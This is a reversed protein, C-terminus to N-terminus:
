IVGLKLVDAAKEGLAMVILAGVVLYLLKMMWGKIEGSTKALSTVSGNLTMLTGEIRVVCEKLTVYRGELSGLDERLTVINLGQGALTRGYGALRTEVRAIEKDLREMDRQISDYAVDDSM